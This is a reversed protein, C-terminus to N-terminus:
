SPPCEIRSHRDDGRPAHRLEEVAELASLVEQLKGGLVVDWNRGRGLRGPTKIGVQRLYDKLSSLSNQLSTLKVIAERKTKRLKM